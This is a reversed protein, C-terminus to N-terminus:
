YTKGTRNGRKVIHAEEIPGVTVEKESNCVWM